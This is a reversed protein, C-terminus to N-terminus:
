DGWLSRVENPTMLGDLVTGTPLDVLGDRIIGTPGRSAKLTLETCGVTCELEDYVFEQVVKDDIVIKLTM